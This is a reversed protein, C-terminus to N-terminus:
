ASSPGSINPNKFFWKPQLVSFPNFRPFSSALIHTQLKANPYNYNQQEQTQHILEEKGM